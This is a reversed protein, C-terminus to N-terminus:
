ASGVRHLHYVAAALVAMALLQHALGLGIPVAALLTWVGLAVQGLVMALLMRASGAAASGIRWHALAVLGAFLAVGYAVMRHNFQVTAVNEFANLWLPSMAFLGDPFLRGDMLPWTNHSLGADLGAVFAGLIIQLVVLGLLFGGSWVAWGTRAWDAAPRGLRLVLWLIAALILVALGLHLALRYQSVDTREALGSAVMYWGAVGQLGGLAFVGGLRLALGPALWGRWWFIVFPVLFVVGILRGLLRHSWEWWYLAKFEALSMGRNIMKYEPIQQYKSFADQWDADSLPPITGLIPKWETISLGSHTLRTAGGVVVMAVVLGAVVLLWTRVLRTRTDAGDLRTM